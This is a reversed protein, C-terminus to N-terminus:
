EVVFLAEKTQETGAGRVTVVLTFVGAPTDGPVPLITTSTQRGAGWEETSTDAAPFQPKGEFYLQREVTIPVRRGAPVGALEFHISLKVESGPSVHVPEVQASLVILEPDYVAPPRGAPSQTGPSQTTPSPVTERPSTAQVSAAQGSSAIPDSLGPSRDDEGTLFRALAEPDFDIPLPEGAIILLSATARVVAEATIDSAELPRGFHIGVVSEPYTKKPIVFMTLVGNEPHSKFHLRRVSDGSNLVPPFRVLIGKYDEMAIDGDASVDFRHMNLRTGPLPVRTVAEMRKFYKNLDDVAAKIGDNAETPSAAALLVLAVALGKM